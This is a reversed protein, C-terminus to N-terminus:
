TRYAMYGAVRGRLTQLYYRAALGNGKLLSVIVGGIPRIMFKLTIAAEARHKHLVYGLGTGYSFARMVSVRTLTKDPHIVRLDFDYFGKGGSKLIRIALDTEECSGFRGNVGLLEDFKEARKLWEASIFFNFAIISTWITRMTIEGSQPEWRGSGLRGQPSLAPGSLFAIGATEAFRKSVTALLDPPYICDDDPFAIIEGTCLSLGVNRAHSLGKVSSHLRTLNMLPTFEGIVPGLRDDDNQDVVFVEFGSFTQGALSRLLARVDDVRNLTPVVLSFRM